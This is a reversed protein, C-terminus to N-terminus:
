KRYRGTAFCSAAVALTRAWAPKEAMVREFAALNTGEVVVEDHATLALPMGEEEVRLITFALLDRSIAQVVNEALKGGWTRIMGWGKGPAYPDRGFYAVEDDEVRPWGYFLARGSPLRVYAFPRNAIETMGMEVPGAQIRAHQGAVARKFGLGLDRWLQPIRPYRGRYADVTRKALEESIEIGHMKKMQRRFTIAGMGYGCGLIARKGVERQAKVVSEFPIAYITAAMQKYPDEGAAFANMLDYQRALWSLNRAEVQEYDGVLFPGVFFGRLMGSLVGLVDDHVLDLVGARLAAFAADLDLGRAADAPLNQIQVGGSSWRQTREAGSYIMSGRLRGDSSTRERFAAIKKLSSYAQLQRLELARRKEPPLDDRALAERVADETFNPLGLAAASKTPNNPNTGTISTFEVVLRDETADAIAAAAPLSDVDVRIGRENARITALWVRREFESLPPLLRHAERTARVDDRCYSYLRAFDAPKDEPTWWIVEGDKTVRRPRSLKMMIRHGDRDKQTELQLARAMDELRRPLAVRAAQASPDEWRDIPTELRMVHRLIAREFECNQAVPVVRDDRLLATWERDDEGPLWSRVEGDDVAWGLCLIATSPHEAYVHSGVGSPGALALRSRTEFDLYLHAM